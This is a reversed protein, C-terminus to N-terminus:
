NHNIHLFPLANLYDQEQSKMLNQLMEMQSNISQQTGDGSNILNTDSMLNMKNMERKLYTVIGNLLDNRLNWFFVNASLVIGLPAYKMAEAFEDAGTYDKINYKDKDKAVIPRFMVAMAKHMTQIDTIYNELDIYEGSTIEEFNPIFGFEIGGLTFRNEFSPTSNFLTNLSGVIDFVDTARINIVENLKLGCFIQVMKDAIFTEDSGSNYVKMFEQYNKLPIENLSTPTIIEVKM